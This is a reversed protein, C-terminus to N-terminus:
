LLELSFDSFKSHLKVQGKKISVYDALDPTDLNCSNGYCLYNFSFELRQTQILKSNLYFCTINVLQGEKNFTYTLHDSGNFQYAITIKTFGNSDVFVTDISFQHFQEDILNSIGGPTIEDSDFEVEFFDISKEIQDKIICFGDQKLYEIEDNRYYYKDEGIYVEFDSQTFKGNTFVQRITLEYATTQNNIISQNFNSILKKASDLEQANVTLYGISLLIIIVTKM